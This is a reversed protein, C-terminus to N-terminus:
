IERLQQAQDIGSYGISPIQSAVKPRMEESLDKSTEGDPLNEMIKILNKNNNLSNNDMLKEPANKRM